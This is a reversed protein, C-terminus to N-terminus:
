GSFFMRKKYIKRELTRPSHKSLRDFFEFIADFHLYRSSTLHGCDEGVTKYTNIMVDIGGELIALTPITPLFDNGVLFCM